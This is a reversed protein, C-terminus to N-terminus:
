NLGDYEDSVLADPLVDPSRAAGPPIVAERHCLLCSPQQGGMTDSWEEWLYKSMLLMHQAYEKAPVEWSPFYRSNHCHTCGVNMSSNMHYMVNQQYQVTDLSIDTRANVNLVDLGDRSLDEDLPLRLNNPLSTLDEPWSLPRAEGYHCTACTMQAGSPQKQDTLGALQPLWERNLAQTMQLHLRANRKNQEAVPEGWEDAAFNDLSHCYTCNVRLGGVVHNIMYGNIEHTTMGELVQVNQPEPFESAYTGMAVYSEGSIYNDAQTNYDVYILSAANVDAITDQSGLQARNNVFTVVLFSTGVLGGTVLLFVLWFLFRKNAIPDKNPQNTM